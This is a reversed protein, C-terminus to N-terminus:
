CTNTQRVGKIIGTRVTMYSVSNIPKTKLHGTLCVLFRNNTYTNFKSSADGEEKETILSNLRPPQKVLFFDIVLKKQWARHFTRILLAVTYTFFKTSIIVKIEKKRSISNRTWAAVFNSSHSTFTAGEYWTMNRIFIPIKNQSTWM